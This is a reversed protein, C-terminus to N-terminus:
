ADPTEKLTPKTSGKSDYPLGTLLQEYDFTIEPDVEVGQDDYTAKYVRPPPIHIAWKGDDTEQFTWIKTTYNGVTYTKGGKDNFFPFRYPTIEADTLTSPDVKEGTVVDKLLGDSNRRNAATFRMARAWSTPEVADKQSTTFVYWM